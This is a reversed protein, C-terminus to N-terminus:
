EKRKILLLYAIIFFLVGYGILILLSVWPFEWGLAAARACATTHTLPLAYIILQAIEPYASVSFLTGCLFTMPLIIVSNFMGLGPLGKAWLGAAVGMLSFVLCSIAVTVILMPTISFDPAMAWGLALLTACGLMGRVFGVTTKGFILAPTSIPCLSIEDFSSYFRKQVLIKNATASFCSTVTSLSVIGPIVFAIYSVGDIGDVLKGIGFSFTFFYLLPMVLISVMITAFNRKFYCLDAWAVRYSESFFNLM